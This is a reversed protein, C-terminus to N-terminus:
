PAAPKECFDRIAVQLDKVSAFGLDSSAEDIGGFKKALFSVCKGHCNPKGPIADPDGLCAFPAPTATATPTATLTATATATATSTATATATATATNTATATATATNTATATATATNTATATATATNTATATATATNTATATATNTATATATNSATATATATNTATATATATNTATATATNTATATATNSATATATATNTATATATPTATSTATAGIAATIQGKICLGFVTGPSGSATGTSFSSLVTGTAEDVHFVTSTASDATWYTKGDPDLNLAFVKGGNGPISDHRIQNGSSDLVTVESSDAVLEDGAPLASGAPIIRHAFAIIGPLGSAFDANQTNTCVNFSKVLHGESTYHMTCQDSALDIWDTGRDEVTPAFSALPAGASSFKLVQHSGDAQGVYVHGAADFLISEDDSNYGSGFSGLLTTGTPDFESVDNGNFDTVYFNGATDFSSGTTFVAGKTTDLTQVLVGGPTFEEVLGDSVSVMVDGDPIVPVASVRSSYAVSWGVVALVAVLFSARLTIKDM